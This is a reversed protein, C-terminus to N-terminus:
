STRWIHVVHILDDDMEGYVSHLPFIYGTTKKCTNITANLKKSFSRQMDKDTTPVTLCHNIHLSELQNRVNSREDGRGYVKAPIPIGARVFATM